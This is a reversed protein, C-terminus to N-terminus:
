ENTKILKPPTCTQSAEDNRIIDSSCVTSQIGFFTNYCVEANHSNWIVVNSTNVKQSTILDEKEAAETSQLM